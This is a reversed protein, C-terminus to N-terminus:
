APPAAEGRLWADLALSYVMISRESLQLHPIAGARILAYTRSRSLGTIEAVQPVSLLVGKVTLPDLARAATARPSDTPSVPHSGTLAGRTPNM